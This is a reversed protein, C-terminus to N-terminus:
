TEDGEWDVGRLHPRRSPAVSRCRGVTEGRSLPTAAWGVNTGMRDGAVSGAVSFMVLIFVRLARAVTV